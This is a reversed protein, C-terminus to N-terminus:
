EARHKKSSKNLSSYREREKGLSHCSNETNKMRLASLVLILGIDNAEQKHLVISLTIQLRKIHHNSYESLNGGDWNPKRRPMDQISLREMKCVEITLAKLCSEVMEAANRSM